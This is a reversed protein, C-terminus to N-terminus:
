TMKGTMRFPAILVQSVAEAILKLSLRALTLVWGIAVAIVRFLGVWYLWVMRAADWWAVLLTSLFNVRRSRFPLTYFSLHTTWIATIWLLVPFFLFICKGAASWGSSSSRFFELRWEQMEAIWSSPAILIEIFGQWSDPVLEVIRNLM